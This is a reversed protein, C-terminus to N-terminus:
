VLPNALLRVPQHQTPLVGVGERVVHYRVPHKGPIRGPTNPALFEVDIGSRVAALFRVPRQMVYHDPVPM